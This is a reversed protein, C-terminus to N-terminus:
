GTLDRDTERHLGVSLVRELRCHFCFFLILDCEVRNLLFVSCELLSIPITPQWPERKSGIMDRWRGFV